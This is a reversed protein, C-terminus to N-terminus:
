WVVDVLGSAAITADRSLLAAGARRAVGVVIRDHMEPVAADIGFEAIHGLELPVFVFQGAAEFRRIEASFDLPRGAKENLFALEAIVITPVLM